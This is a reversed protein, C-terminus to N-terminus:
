RHNGAAAVHVVVKLQLSESVRVVINSSLYWFSSISCPIAAPASLNPVKVSLDPRDTQKGGGCADHGEGGFLLEGYKKLAPRSADPGTRSVSQEAYADTM